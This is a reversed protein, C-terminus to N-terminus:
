YTVHCQQKQNISDRKALLARFTRQQSIGSSMLQLPAPGYARRHVRLFKVSLKLTSFVSDSYRTKTGIEIVDLNMVCCAHIM